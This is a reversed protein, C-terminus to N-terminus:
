KLALFYASSSSSFDTASEPIGTGVRALALLEEGKPVIFYNTLTKTEGHKLLTSIHIELSDLDYEPRYFAGQVSVLDIDSFLLDAETGRTNTYDFTVKVVTQDDAVQPFENKARFEQTADFNVDKISIACFRGVAEKGLPAPNKWSGEESAFDFFEGEMGLRSGAPIGTEKVDMRMSPQIAAPAKLRELVTRESREWMEEYEEPSLQEQQTSGSSSDGLRDDISRGWQASTFIFYHAGFTVVLSVMSLIIAIIAPVKGVAKQTVGALATILAFLVLAISILGFFPLWSLLLALISLILAAIGWAASGQKQEPQQFYLPYHVSGEAQPVAPAEVRLPAYPSVSGAQGVNGSQPVYPSADQAAFPNVRNDPDFPNLPESM